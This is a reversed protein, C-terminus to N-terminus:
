LLSLVYATLAVMLMAVILTVWLRNKQGTSADIFDDITTMILHERELPGSRRSSTPTTTTGRPIPQDPCTLPGKAYQKQDGGGFLDNM